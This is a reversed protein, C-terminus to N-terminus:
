LTNLQFKDKFHQMFECTHHVTPSPIVSEYRFTQTNIYVILYFTPIDATKGSPKTREDKCIFQAKKFLQELNDLAFMCVDQIKSNIEHGSTWRARAV